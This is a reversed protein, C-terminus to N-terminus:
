ARGHRDRRELRCGNRARWPLAQLFLERSHRLPEYVRFMEILGSLAVVTEDDRDWRIRLTMPKEGASVAAIRPLIKRPMPSCGNM